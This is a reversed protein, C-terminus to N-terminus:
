QLKKSLERKLAAIDSEKRTIAAKMDGVREMYKQFNKENGMREPEGNNYESKLVALRDEERKLEAELIRRADSDRNRQETPDIRSAAAGSPTAAGTALTPAARPKPGPIVTIPAGEITRCGKDRAERASIADTYLVPNGPCRYVASPTGTAAPAPQSQLFPVASEVPAAVSGAQGHVSGHLGLVASGLWAWASWTVLVDRRM